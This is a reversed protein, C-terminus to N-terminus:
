GRRCGRRTVATQMTLLTRSRELTASILTHIILLELLSIRRATVVMIRHRSCTDAAETFYGRSEQVSIRMWMPRPAPVLLREDHAFRRMLQEIVLGGGNHELRKCRGVPVLLAIHQEDVEEGQIGVLCTGEAVRAQLARCSVADSRTLCIAICTRM